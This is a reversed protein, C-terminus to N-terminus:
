TPNRGEQERLGLQLLCLHACLMERLNLVLTEGIAVALLFKNLNRIDAMKTCLNDAKLFTAPLIKGHSITIERSGSMRRSLTGPSSGCLKSASDMTTIPPLAAETSDQVSCTAIDTPPLYHLMHTPTPSHSLLLPPIVPDPM